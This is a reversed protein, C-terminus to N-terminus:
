DIPIEYGGVPRISIPYCNGTGFVKEMNKQYCDKMDKPVLALITGTFGGGHIRWAGKGELLTQSVALALAASREEKSSL